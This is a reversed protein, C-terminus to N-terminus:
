PAQPFLRYVNALISNPLEDVFHEEGHVKGLGHIGAYSLTSNWGVSVSLIHRPGRYWEFAAEGDPDVSVEPTPVHPPLAELFRFAQYHDLPTMPKAGYGDWNEESSELYLDELAEYAVRHPEGLVFSRLIYDESLEKFMRQITKADEGVGRNAFLAPLSENKVYTTRM